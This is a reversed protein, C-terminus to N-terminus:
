VRMKKKRCTMIVNRQAINNCLKKYQTINVINNLLQKIDNIKNQLINPLITLIFM